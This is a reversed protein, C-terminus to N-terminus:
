GAGYGRQERGPHHTCRDPDPAIDIAGVAGLRIMFAFMALVFANRQGMREALLTGLPILVTM